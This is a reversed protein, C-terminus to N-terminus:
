KCSFFPYFFWHHEWYLKTLYYIAAIGTAGAIWFNIWYLRIAMQDQHIKSLVNQNAELYKQRYGGLYDMLTGEYTAEYQSAIVHAFGDKQLKQFIKYLEGSDIQKIIPTEHEFIVNISGLFEDFYVGNKASVNKALYHLVIDIKRIVEPIEINQKTM